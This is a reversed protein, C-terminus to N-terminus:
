KKVNFWIIFGVGALAFPMFLLTPWLRERTMPVRRMLYNAPTFMGEEGIQLCRYSVIPLLPFLFVCFWLTTVFSGCRECLERANYHQIGMVINAAGRIATADTSSGHCETCFGPIKKKERKLVCRRCVGGKAGKACVKCLYRKCAKCRYDAAVKKHMSCANDTADGGDEAEEGDAADDEAPDDTM